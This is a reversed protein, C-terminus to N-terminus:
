DSLAESYNGRRERLRESRRAATRKQQEGREHMKQRIHKISKIHKAPLRSASTLDFNSSIRKEATEIEDEEKRKGAIDERDEGGNEGESESSSAPYEIAPHSIVDRGDYTLAPINATEIAQAQSPGELAQTRPGEIASPNRAGDNSYTIPLSSSGELELQQQQNQQQQQQQQQQHLYLQRQQENQIQQIRSLDNIQGQQRLALSRDEQQRLSLDRNQDYTLANRRDQEIAQSAQRSELMRNQDFLIAQRQEQELARNGLQDFLLANRREQELANNRVGDLGLALQQVSHHIHRMSSDILMQTQNRGEIETRSIMDRLVPLVRNYTLQSSAGNMQLMLSKIEEQQGNVIQLVRSDSERKWELAKRDMQDQISLQHERDLSSIRSLMMDHFSERERREMERAAAERKQIDDSIKQVSLKIESIGEPGYNVPLGSKEMQVVVNNIQSIAQKQINIATNIPTISSRFSEGIRTVIEDTLSDCFQRDNAHIRKLIDESPLSSNVGLQQGRRKINSQFEEEEASHAEEKGRWDQFLSHIKKTMREVCAFLAPILTSMDFDTRNPHSSSNTHINFSHSLGQSDNGPSKAKSGKSSNYTKSGRFGKKRNVVSGQKKKNHIDTRIPQSQSPTVNEVASLPKSRIEENKLRDRESNDGSSMLSMGESKNGRLSHCSSAAVVGGGNNYINVRGGPYVDTNNVQKDFYRERGCGEEQMKKGEEEEEEGGRGGGGEEIKRMMKDYHVKSLLYMKKFM